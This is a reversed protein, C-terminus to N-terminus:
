KQSFYIKHGCVKDLHNTFYLPTFQFNCQTYTLFQNLQRTSKSISLSLGSGTTTSNIFQVSPTAHIHYTVGLDLIGSICYFRNCQCYLMLRYRAFKLLFMKESFTTGDLVLEVFKPTRKKLIHKVYINTSSFQGSVQM